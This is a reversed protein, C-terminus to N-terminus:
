CRVSADYVLKGAPDVYYCYGQTDRYFRVGNVVV